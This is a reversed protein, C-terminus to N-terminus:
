RVVVGREIRQLFSHDGVFLAMVLVTILLCLLLSKQSSGGYQLM